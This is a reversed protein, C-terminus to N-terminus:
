SRVMLISLIRALTQRMQKNEPISHRIMRYIAKKLIRTQGETLTITTKM